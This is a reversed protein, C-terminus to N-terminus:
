FEPTTDWTSCGRPIELLLAHKAGCVTPSIPASLGNNISDAGLLCAMGGCGM